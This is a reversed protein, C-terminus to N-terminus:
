MYSSAKDCRIGGTCFMAVKKHVAPVFHGKIYEPFERFSTTKPDISGEFTGISVEYDYRTYILLVVPDTILDFWDYPEV